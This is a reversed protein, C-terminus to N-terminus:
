AENTFIEADKLVIVKRTDEVYSLRGSALNTVGTKSNEGERYTPRYCTPVDNIIYRDSSTCDKYFPHIFRVCLGCSVAGVNTSLQHDNIHTRIYM